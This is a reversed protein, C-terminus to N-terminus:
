SRRVFGSVLITLLVIAIPIWQIARTRLVVGEAPVTTWFATRGTLRTANTATVTGPLEVSVSFDQAGPGSRGAERRARLSFDYTTMLLYSKKVFAAEGLTAVPLNTIRGLPSEDGRVDVIVQDGLTARVFAEFRTTSLVLTALVATFAVGLWFAKLGGTMSM